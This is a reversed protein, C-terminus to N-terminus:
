PVVWASFGAASVRQALSFAEAYTRARGVRVTLLRRAQQQTVGIEPAFGATRLRSAERQAGENSTYAGTQVTFAGARYRRRAEAAAPTGPFNKIVYALYTDATSWRGVRQLSIALRLVLRDLPVGDPPNGLVGNYARVADWDRGEEFHVNGIAVQVYASIPPPPAARMARQFDALAENRRNLRVEALGRYYYVEGRAPSSPYAALFRTFGDVAEQWRGAEFAARGPKFDQQAERTVSTGCGAAALFGAAAFLGAALIVWARHVKSGRAEGPRVGGEDSLCWERPIVDDGM